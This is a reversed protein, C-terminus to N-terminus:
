KKGVHGGQTTQHSNGRGHGGQNFPRANHFSHNQFSQQQAMSMAAKAAAIKIKNTVRDITRLTEPRHQGMNWEPNCDLDQCMMHDLMVLDHVELVEAQEMLYM